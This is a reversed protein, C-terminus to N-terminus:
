GFLKGLLSTGGLTKAGNAAISMGGTMPATIISAGLNLGGLIGGLTNQKTQANSAADSMAGNQFATSINNATNSFLDAQNQGYTTALGALTNQENAMGGAASLGLQSLSGLQSTWNGYEQNALGQGYQTLAALQNGSALMGNAAASRDLAGIGQDLQFQYGPSTQFANTAATNGRAGNLGLANQLMDLGNLGAENYPEYYGIAANIADQAQQNGQQLAALSQQQAQQQLITNYLAAMAGADAM